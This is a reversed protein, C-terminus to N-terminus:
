ASSMATCKPSLAHRTEGLDRAEPTQTTGLIVSGSNGSPLVSCTVVNCKQYICTPSATMSTCVQLVESQHQVAALIKGLMKVM